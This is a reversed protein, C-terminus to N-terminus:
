ERFVRPNCKYLIAMHFTLYEIGYGNESIHVICKWLLTIYWLIEQFRRLTKIFHFTDKSHLVSLVECKLNGLVSFMDRVLPYALYNKAIRVNLHRFDMVLRKDQTLKRSILMVPSSYLSFGEKLIGLYCLCKM